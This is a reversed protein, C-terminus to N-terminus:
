KGIYTIIYAIYTIKPCNLCNKPLLQNTLTQTTTKIIPFGEYPIMNMLFNNHRKMIEM